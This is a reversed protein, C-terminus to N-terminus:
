CVEKYALKDHFKEHCNKCLVILDSDAINSIHEMGHNEYTKHHVNLVGKCGCLQCRYKAKKLKYSRVGDWYPTQIFDYYSMGCIVKKVEKEFDIEYGLISTMISNIKETSSIEQKFRNNPNLYNEIYKEIKIKTREKYAIDKEKRKQIEKEEEKAKCQECHFLYKDYSYSSGYGLVQMLKTKSLIKRQNRGCIPCKLDVFYKHGGHPMSDKYIYFAKQLNKKKAKKLIELLEADIFDGDKILKESTGDETSILEKIFEKDM